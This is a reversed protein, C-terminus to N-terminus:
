AELEVEEEKPEKFDTDSEIDPEKAGAGTRTHVALVKFSILSRYLFLMDRLIIAEVTYTTLQEIVSLKAKLTNVNRINYHRADTKAARM